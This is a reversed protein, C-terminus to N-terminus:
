GRKFNQILLRFPYKIILFGYTRITALWWRFGVEKFLKVGFFTRFLAVKLGQNFLKTSSINSSSKRYKAYPDKLIYFKAGGLYFRYLWEFDAAYECQWRWLGHTALLEKRFMLCPNRVPPAANIINKEVTTEVLNCFEDSFEYCNCGVADINSNELLYKLQAEVRNPMSIDDPDNIVIFGGSCNLFGINYTVAPYIEYNDCYVKKIRSDKEAYSDIISRSGDTSSDRICM